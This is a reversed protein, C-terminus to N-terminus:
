HPKTSNVKPPRLPVNERIIAGQEDIVSMRSFASVVSADEDLVEVCRELFNPAVEDDHAQWKFYHGSCLEFARNFNRSAGINTQNRHYSVRQDQAAYSRCIDETGDTSANDSIILEFDEFSQALTTEIARGVLAEGEYVPLAISVRPKRNSM